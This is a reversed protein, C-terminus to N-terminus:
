PLEQVLYGRATGSFMMFPRPLLCIVSYPVQLLVNQGRSFHQM